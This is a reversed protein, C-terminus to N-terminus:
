GSFSLHHKVSAFLPFSTSHDRSEWVRVLGNKTAKTEKQLVVAQKRENTTTEGAANKGDSLTFDPFDPFRFHKRVERVL